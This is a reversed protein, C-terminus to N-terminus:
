ISILRTAWGLVAGLPKRLIWAAMAGAIIGAMWFRKVWDHRSQKLTAIEKQDNTYADAYWNAIGLQKDYQGALKIREDESTRLEAKAGSLDASLATIVAKAAPCEVEIIKVKEEASEIHKVAARHAAAIPETSPAIFRAPPKPPASACGGLIWLLFGAGLLAWTLRQLHRAM